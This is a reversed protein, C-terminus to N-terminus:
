KKAANLLTIFYDCDAFIISALRLVDNAPLDFKVLEKGEADCVNWKRLGFDFNARCMRDKAAEFDLSFNPLYKGYVTDNSEYNDPATLIFNLLYKDNRNVKVTVISDNKNDSTRLKLSASVRKASTLITYISDGVANRMVSDRAVVPLNRTEGSPRATCSTTVMSMLMFAVMTGISWRGFLKLDKKMNM